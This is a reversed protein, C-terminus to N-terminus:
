ELLLKTEVSDLSLALTLFVSFWVSHNSYHNDCFLENKESLLGDMCDWLLM